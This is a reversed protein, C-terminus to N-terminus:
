GKNLLKQYLAYMGRNGKHPRITLNGDDWEYALQNAPLEPADVSNYGRLYRPSFLDDTDNYVADGWASITREPSYPQPAAMLAETMKSDLKSFDADNGHKAVYNYAKTLVGDKPVDAVPINNFYMTDGQLANQLVPHEVYKGM